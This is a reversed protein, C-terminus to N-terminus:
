MDQKKLSDVKQQIRNYITQNKPSMFSIAISSLFFEANDWKNNKGKLFSEKAIYEREDESFTSDWWEQLHYQNIIKRTEEYNEKNKNGFLSFINGM